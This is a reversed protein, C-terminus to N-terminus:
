MVSSHLLLVWNSVSSTHFSENLGCSSRHDMGSTKQLLQAQAMRSSPLHIFQASHCSARLQMVVPGSSCSLQGQAAHCSARLQMVVPGSSCSLQGQAAHCSAWTATERFEFFIIVKDVLYRADVYSRLITQYCTVPKYCDVEQQQYV